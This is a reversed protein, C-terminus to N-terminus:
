EIWLVIDRRSLNHSSIISALAENNPLSTGVASYFLISNADHHRLFSLKQTKDSEVQLIRFVAAAAAISCLTFAHCVDGMAGDSAGGAYGGRLGQLSASRPGERGRTRPRSPPRQARRRM